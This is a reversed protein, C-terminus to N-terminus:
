CIYIVDTRVSFEKGSDLVTIQNFENEQFYILYQKIKERIQTFDMKLRFSDLKNEGYCVIFIRNKLHKRQEQSQNEYLWRCMADKLERTNLPSPYFSFKNSYVTLKVDFPIGRIYIDVERDKQNKVRTAGELCFLDECHKSTKYNYWRHLAYQFLMEDGQCRRIIEDVNEVEYIFRTRGDDYNNQKSWDPSLLHFAKELEILLKSQYKTFSLQEM